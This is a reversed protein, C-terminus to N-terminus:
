FLFFGVTVAIYPLFPVPEKLNGHRDINHRLLQTVGLLFYSSLMHLLFTLLGTGFCSEYFACVLFAIGDSHGYMKMFLFHQLFWYLPLGLIVEPEPKLWLVVVLGPALGFIHLFDYVEKTQLDTISSVLLYSALVGLCIMGLTGWNRLLITIWLGAGIGTGIILIVENHRIILSNEEDFRFILFLYFASLVIIELSITFAMM